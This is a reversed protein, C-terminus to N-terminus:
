ISFFDSFSNEFAAEGGAHEGGQDEFCGIHAWLHGQARVRGSGAGAGVKRVVVEQTIVKVPAKVM